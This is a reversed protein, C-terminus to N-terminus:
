LKELVENESVREMRGDPHVLINCPVSGDFYDTKKLFRILEIDNKFSLVPFNIGKRRIYARLRDDGIMSKAHIGIVKLKPNNALQKIMPLENQCYPCDHGFLFLLVNQGQHQADLFELNLGDANVKILSGDTTPLFLVHNDSIVPKSKPQQQPQPKPVPTPSPAPTPKPHPTAKPKPQPQVQAQPTSVSTSQPTPQGLIQPKLIKPQVQTTPHPAKEQNSPAEKITCGATLILLTLLTSLYKTM